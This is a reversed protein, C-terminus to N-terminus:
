RMASLNETFTEGFVESVRWDRVCVNGRRGSRAPDTDKGGAAEGSAAVINLASGMYQLAKTHNLKKNPVIRNAGMGHRGSARATGSKIKM